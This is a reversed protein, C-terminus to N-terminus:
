NIYRMNRGLFRLYKKINDPIERSECYINVVGKRIELKNIGFQGGFNRLATLGALYNAEDPIKGFRDLMESLM